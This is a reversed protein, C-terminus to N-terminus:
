WLPVPSEGIKYWGPLRTGSTSRQIRQQMGPSLADATIM